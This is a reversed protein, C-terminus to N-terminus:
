SIKAKRAGEKCVDGAGPPEKSWGPTCLAETGGQVRPCGKGTGLCRTVLPGGMKAQSAKFVLFEIEQLGGM